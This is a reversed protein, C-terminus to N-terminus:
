LDPNMVHIRRSHCAKSQAVLLRFNQVEGLLITQLRIFDEHQTAVSRAPNPRAARLPQCPNCRTAAHSPITTVIPQQPIVLALTPKVGLLVPCNQEAGTATQCTVVRM